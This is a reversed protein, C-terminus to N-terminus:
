PAVHPCLSSALEPPLHSVPFEEQVTFTRSHPQGCLPCAPLQGAMARLAQRAAALEADLQHRRDLETKISAIAIANIIFSAFHVGNNWYLAFRSSYKAGAYSDALAWALSAVLSM